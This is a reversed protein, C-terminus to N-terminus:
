VLEDESFNEDFTETTLDGFVCSIARDLKTTLIRLQTAFLLNKPRSDYLKYHGSLLGRVGGEAGALTWECLQRMNNIPNGQNNLIQIIGDREVGSEVFLSEITDSSWFLYVLYLCRCSYVNPQVMLEKCNLPYQNDGRVLWRIIEWTVVCQNLDKERVLIMGKKKKALDAFVTCDNIVSCNGYYDDPLKFFQVPKKVQNIDVIHTDWPTVLGSAEIIVVFELMSSANTDALSNREFYHQHVLAKETESLDSSLRNLYKVECIKDFQQQLVDERRLKDMTKLKKNVVHILDETLVVPKSASPLEPAVASKENIGENRNGNRRARSRTIM